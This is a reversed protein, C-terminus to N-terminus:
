IPRPRRSVRTTVVVNARPTPTPNRPAYDGGTRPPARKASMPPGPMISAVADKNIVQLDVGQLAIFHQDFSAIRGTLRVGSLLYIVVNRRAKRLQNLYPEQIRTDDAGDKPPASAQPEATSM